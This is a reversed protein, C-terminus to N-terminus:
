QGMSPGQGEGPLHFSVRRERFVVNHKAKRADRQAPTLARWAANCAPYDFFRHGPQECGLCVLDSMPGQQVAHIGREVPPSSSRGSAAGASAGARSSGSGSSSSAGAGSISSSSYGRFGGRAGGRFPGRQQHDWQQQQVQSAPESPWTLVTHKERVLNVAGALTLPTGQYLATRVKETVRDKTEKHALGAVFWDVHEGPATEQIGARLAAQTFDLIYSNLSSGGQSMGKLQAKLLSANPAPFMHELQAQLQQWTPTQGSLRELVLQRAKGQLATTIITAVVLGDAAIGPLCERMYTALAEMFRTASLGEHDEGNFKPGNSLVRQLNSAMSLTRSDLQQYPAM